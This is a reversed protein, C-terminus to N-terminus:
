PSPRLVRMHGGRLTNATPGTDRHGHIYALTFASKFSADSLVALCERLSTAVDQMFTHSIQMGDGM